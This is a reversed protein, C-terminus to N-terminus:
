KGLKRPFPNKSKKYIRKFFKALVRDDFLNEGCLRYFLRGCIRADELANHANYTWDFTSALYTLSYRNKKPWLKRSLSFTCYYAYEPVELSYRKLTASLVNMDFQANHAVLPSSGIFVKLDPWIEDFHPAKSVDESKLHHVSTCVPDFYLVPPAILSYYSDIEEGDESFRVLGIACASDDSENATEFDIAVYEM